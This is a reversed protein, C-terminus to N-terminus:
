NPRATAARGANWRTVTGRGTWATRSRTLAAAKTDGIKFM